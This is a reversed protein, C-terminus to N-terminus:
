ITIVAVHCLCLGVFDIGVNVWPLEPIPVPRASGEPSHNRPKHAQCSVCGVCFEHVDHYMAPWYYMEALRRYTKDVGLHGAIPTNHAESLCLTRFAPPVVLREAGKATWVLARTPTLAFRSHIPDHNDTSNTLTSIMKACFPDSVQAAVLDALSTNVPTSLDSLSVPHSFGSGDPVSTSYYYLPLSFIPLLKAFDPRRSLADAVVNDKGRVHIVRDFDFNALHQQWRALRPSLSETPQTQLYKLSEHDTHIEIPMGTLYHRWVKLADRIALLEQERTTYNIEAPIFKRSYFAVPKLGNGSDQMLTAGLAFKSADTVLVPRTHPNYPQLVPATTLKTKLTEFALTHDDTWVYPTDKSLLPFLPLCIEAYFEVYRRYYNALGLFSRLEHIDLPTPWDRIADTKNSDVSIGDKSVVHGLFDVSDAFFECKSLKATLENSQLITLVTQIHRLHSSHDISHILIDDIFVEVFDLHGLLRSVLRQFVSPSNTLGMPMCQWEYHGFPTRFATKEVSNEHVRTQWFGSFLDIKSFVKSQGLNDFLDEAHPIPFKDKITQSNLARYDICLRLGGDKKPAFLVPAGYPSQSPRIVGAALMKSLQSKLEIIQPPSLRYVKKFVPISGPEERIQLDEPRHPGLKLKPPDPFVSQTFPTLTAEFLSRFTPSVADLRPQITDLYQSISLVPKTPISEMPTPQDLNSLTHTAYPSKYLSPSYPTSPAYPLPSSPNPNPKFPITSLEVDQDNLPDARVYLVGTNFDVDSVSSLSHEFRQASSFEINFTDFSSLTPPPSSSFEPDLQLEHALAEKYATQADTLMRKMNTILLKSQAPSPLNTHRYDPLCRQSRQTNTTSYLSDATPSPLTRHWQPDPSYPPYVPNTPHLVVDRGRHNFRVTKDKAHLTADHRCMWPMGLIVDTGQLPLVRFTVDAKYQRDIVITLPETRHTMPILHGNPLRVASQNPLAILLCGLSKALEHSIFNGHAGPDCLTIAVRGKKGIRIQWRIPSTDPPLNSNLAALLSTAASSDM